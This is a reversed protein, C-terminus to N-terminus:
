HIVPGMAQAARGHNLMVHSHHLEIETRQTGKYFHGMAYGCLLSFNGTLALQNWLMEARIAAEDQGGSWLVDVMEGYIRVTVDTRGRRAREIVATMNDAFLNADPTGDVMFMSLMESADAFLLEGAGELGEVDLHRTMLEKAIGAQHEPTAVILAPQEAAFGESLFEAVIRCLSAPTDYFKVAHFHSTSQQM